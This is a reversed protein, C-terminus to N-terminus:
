DVHKNIQEFYKDVGSIIKNIQKDRLEIDLEGGGISQVQGLAPNPTPTSM